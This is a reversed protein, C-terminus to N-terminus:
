IDIDFCYENITYLINNFLANKMLVILRIINLTVQIWHISTKFLV